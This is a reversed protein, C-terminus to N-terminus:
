MGGGLADDAAWEARARNYGETSLTAQMLALWAGQAAASLNGWMLGARQFAGNPLNSWRQKQATDTWAFQGAQKEADSLTAVFANAAALITPSADQATGTVTSSTTTRSAPAPSHGAMGVM